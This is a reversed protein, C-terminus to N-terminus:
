GRFKEIMFEQLKKLKLYDEYSMGHYDNVSTYQFFENKDEFDFECSVNDEQFKITCNNVGIRISMDYEKSSYWIFILKDGFFVPWTFVKKNAYENLLNHHECKIYLTELDDIFIDILLNVSKNEM